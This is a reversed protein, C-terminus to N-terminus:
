PSREHREDLDALIRRGDAVLESFQRQSVLGAQAEPAQQLRDVRALFSALEGSLRPKGPADRLARLMEVRQPQEGMHLREVARSEIELKLTLLPTLLNGGSAYHNIRGALGAPCDVSQLYSRRAYASRRPLSTIVLGLLLGSLLTSLALVVWRPPRLTAAREIAATVQPLAQQMRGTTGTWRTKSDAILLGGSPGPRLYRVLNAAFRRNGSFELMNNILVSADSIAILRGKGVAASLVVASQTGSAGTLAFVARLSPHYLVQPHNTVLADVGEALPHQEPATALPLEPNHRLTILQARGPGHMGMGFTRFFERGRGFDDAVAVHGGSRMFTVLESTPLPATPHVILLANSLTLKTADIYEPYETRGASAAIARLHSLGNWTTREASLDEAHARHQDFVLLSACVVVFLTM